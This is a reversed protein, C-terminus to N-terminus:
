YGLWEYLTSKDFNTVNIWKFGLVVEGNEYFGPKTYNEKAYINENIIKFDINHRKLIKAITEVNM